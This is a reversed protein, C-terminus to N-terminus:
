TFICAYCLAIPNSSVTEMTTELDGSLEAQVYPDFLFLMIQKSASLSQM